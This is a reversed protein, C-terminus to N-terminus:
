YHFYLFVRTVFNGMFSIFERSRSSFEFCFDGSTRLLPIIQEMFEKDVITKFIQFITWAKANAGFVLSSKEVSVMWCPFQDYRSVITEMLLNGKFEFMRVLKNLLLLRDKFFKSLVNECNKVEYINGNYCEWNLSIGGGWVQLHLCKGGNRYVGQTACYM